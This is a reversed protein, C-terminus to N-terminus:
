SIGNLDSKQLALLLKLWPTPTYSQEYKSLQFWKDITKMCEIIETKSKYKTPLQFGNDKTKM